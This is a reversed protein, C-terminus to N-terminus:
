RNKHKDFMQTWHFSYTQEKDVMKMFADEFSYVICVVNWNAQANDAIFGKFNPNALGFRFMVQNLKRWM